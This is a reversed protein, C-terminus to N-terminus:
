LSYYDFVNQKLVSLYVLLMANLTYFCVWIDVALQNRVLIGLDDLISLFFALPSSHAEM